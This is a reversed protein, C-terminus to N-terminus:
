SSAEGFIDDALAMSLEAVRGQLVLQHFLDCYSVIKYDGEKALREMEASSIRHLPGMKENPFMKGRVLFSIVGDENESYMLSEEM